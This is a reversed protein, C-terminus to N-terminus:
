LETEPPFTVDKMPASSIGAACGAIIAMMTIWPMGLCYRCQNIGIRQKGKRSRPREPPEEQGEPQYRFMAPIQKVKMEDEHDTSGWEKGPAFSHIASLGEKWLHTVMQHRHDWVYNGHYTLAELLETREKETWKWGIEGFAKLIM